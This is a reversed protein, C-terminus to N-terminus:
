LQKEIKHYNTYSHTIVFGKKQYIELGAITSVAKITKIGQSVAWDEVTSFIKSFVGNGRYEPLIYFYKLFGKESMAAFGNIVGNEEHVFFRDGEDFLIPEGLDKYVDRSLAFLGVKACISEKSTLISIM